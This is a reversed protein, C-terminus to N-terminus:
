NIEPMRDPFMITFQNLALKWQRIPMTWKKSVGRIALYLVKFLGDETPFHGRTKVAKRLTHNLSEIINTTYIVRRIDKPFDFFPIVKEWNNRWSKVIAGYKEGWTLEFDDLASEALAVTNAQYIKKLDKAVAKKEQYPVFNLSHRVM